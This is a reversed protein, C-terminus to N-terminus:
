GLCYPKTILFWLISVNLISYIHQYDDAKDEQHGKNKQKSFKWFWWQLNVKLKQPLIFLKSFYSIKIEILHPLISTINLRLGKEWSSERSSYFQRANSLTFYDLMLLTIFPGIKAALPPFPNLFLSPHLSLTLSSLHASLSSYFVLICYKIYMLYM